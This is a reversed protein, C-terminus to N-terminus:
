VEPIELIESLQNFYYKTSGGELACSQLVWKEYSIEMYAESDNGIRLVGDAFTISTVDTIIADIFGAYTYQLNFAYQKAIDRLQEETIESGAESNMEAFAVWVERNSACTQKQIITGNQAYLACADLDGWFGLGEVPSFHWIAGDNAALKTLSGENDVFVEVSNIECSLNATFNENDVSVVGEELKGQVWAVYEENSLVEINKTVFFGSYVFTLEKKGVTTNDFTSDYYRNNSIVDYEDIVVEAGSECIASVVCNSELEQGIFFKDNAIEVSFETVWDVNPLAPIESTKNFEYEVGGQLPVLKNMSWDQYSIEVSEESDNVIRLIGDELTISTIDSWDLELMGAYTCKPNFASMVAFEMLFAEDYICGDSVISILMEKNSNFIQKTYIDGDNAYYLTHSGLDAWIQSEPTAYYWLSGDNIALLTKSGDEEIIYATVSNIECSINAEINNHDIEIVSEMLNSHAWVFYNQNDLVEVTKNVTFGAYKFAVEQEGAVSNDFGAVRYDTVEAVKGSEYKAKVVCNTTLSQGLFFKNDIEVDIGVVTDALVEVTYAETVDNYSVYIVYKGVIESNFTSSDVKFDKVVSVKDNDYKARVILGDASFEEGTYFETKVDGTNLELGILNVGGWSCASVLLLMPVCLLFALVSFLQKRKM